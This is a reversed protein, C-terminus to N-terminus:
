IARRSPSRFVWKGNESRFLTWIASSTERNRDSFPRSPLYSGSNTRRSRYQRDRHRGGGMRVGVTISTEGSPERAEDGADGFWKV